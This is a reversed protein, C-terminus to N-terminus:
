VPTALMLRLHARSDLWKGFHSLTVATHAFTVITPKGSIHHTIGRDDQFSGGQCSEITLTFFFWIMKM